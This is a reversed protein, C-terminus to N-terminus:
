NPYEVKELVQTWNLVGGGIEEKVTIGLEPSFWAHHTLGRPANKQVPMKVKMARIQGAPLNLTEMRIAHVVGGGSTVKNTKHDLSKWQTLWKDGPAMPFRYRQEVPKYTVLAQNKADRYGKLSFDKTSYYAQTSNKLGKVSTFKVYDTDGIKHMGSVKYSIIEPLNAWNNRWTFVTGPKPASYALITDKRASPASNSISATTENSPVSLDSGDASQATQNAAANKDPSTSVLARNGSSQCGVLAVVAVFPLIQLIRM